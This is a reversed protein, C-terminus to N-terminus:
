AKGNLIEMIIEYRSIIDKQKFYIIRNCDNIQRHFEMITDTITRVDDTAVVEKVLTNRLNIIQKELYSTEENLNDISELFISVRIDNLMSKESRQNTEETQNNNVNCFFDKKTFDNAKSVCLDIHKYAEYVLWDPIDDPTNSTRIIQYHRDILNDPKDTGYYLADKLQHLEEYNLETVLM